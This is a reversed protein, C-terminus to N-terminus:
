STVEAVNHTEVGAVDQRYILTPIGADIALQACHSAGKSAKNIFALCLAPYPAAEVMAVNRRMGAFRCTPNSRPCRCSGPSHENWKAPWPDVDGGLSQWIGAAHRDGHPADGHTLVADPYQGHVQELASRMTSFERFSRSVTALIRVTM